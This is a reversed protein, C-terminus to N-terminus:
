ETTDLQDIQKCSRTQDYATAKLWGLGVYLLLLLHIPLALINRRRMLVFYFGRLLQRILGLLIMREDYGLATKWSAGEQLARTKLYELTLREDSVKHYVISRQSLVVKFRQQVARKIFESDECFIKRDRRFGLTEKFLLTKSVAKRIAFNNSWLASEASSIYRNGVAVYVGLLADDWWSPSTAKGVFLPESVGGVIDAGQELIKRMELLWGNAPLVDDDLFLVYQGSANLIGFNRMGGSSSQEPTELFKLRVGEESYRRRMEDFFSLGNNVDTVVLVEAPKERAHLLHRLLDHIERRREKITPIVLSFDYCVELPKKIM